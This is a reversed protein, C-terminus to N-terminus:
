GIVSLSSHSGATGTILRQFPTERAGGTVLRVSLYDAGDALYLATRM